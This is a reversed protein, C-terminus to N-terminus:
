APQPVPIVGVQVLMPFLGQESWHEAARGDRFRGINASLTEFRKGTAPFGLGDGTHTGTTRVVWACLDGQAVVDSIRCHVDPVADRWQAVLQKFTERGSIDGMPGHDVYDEAFLEDAIELRGQNIIEDFMRTLIAEADPALAQVVPASDMVETFSTVRGNRLTWLHVFPVDFSGGAVTRGRHRGPVVVTDGAEIYRDPRVDLEAVNRMLATFFDAAGQPGSYVGGFPVSDPVTWVLDEAFLSLVGPIDGAAFAAYGSRAVDANGTTAAVDPIETAAVIGAEPTYVEHAQHFVAVPQQDIGLEIMAPVLRHEGFAGFAEESAWGDLNHCDEGEWWTLHAIGGEPPRQVWGVRERLADYQERTIGRLTVEVIVAM